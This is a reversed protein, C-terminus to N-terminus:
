WCDSCGSSSDAMTVSLEEMTAVLGLFHHKRSIESYFDFRPTRNM